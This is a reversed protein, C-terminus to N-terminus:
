QQPKHDIGVSHIYYSCNKIITLFILTESNILEFEPFVANRKLQKRRELPVANPMNESCNVPQLFEVRFIDVYSCM